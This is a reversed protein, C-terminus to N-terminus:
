GNIEVEEIEIGWATLVSTLFPEPVEAKLAEVDEVVYAKRHDEGIQEETGDENVLFRQTLISVSDETLMDAIIKTKINM